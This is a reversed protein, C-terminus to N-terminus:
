GTLLRTKWSSLGPRRNDQATKFSVGLLKPFLATGEGRFVMSVARLKFVYSQPSRGKAPLTQATSVPSPSPKALAKEIEEASLL